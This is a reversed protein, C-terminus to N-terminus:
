FAPPSKALTRGLLTSSLHTKILSFNLTMGVDSSIIQLVNSKEKRTFPAPHVHTILVNQVDVRSLAEFNLQTNINFIFLCTFCRALTLELRSFEPHASCLPGLGSLMVERCMHELLMNIWAHLQLFFFLFLTLHSTFSCCVTSSEGDASPTIVKGALGM